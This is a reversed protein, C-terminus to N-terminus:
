VQLFIRYLEYHDDRLRSWSWLDKSWDEHYFYPFLGVWSLLWCDWSIVQSGLCIIIAVIESFRFGILELGLGFGFALRDGNLVRFRFIRFRIILIMSRIVFRMWRLFYIINLYSFIIVFISYQFIIVVFLMFLDFILFM